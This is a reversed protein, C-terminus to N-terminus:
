LGERQHLITKLRAIARRTSRFMHTQTTQGLRKQMRLGFQEKRLQLIQDQLDNASKSKLEKTNM